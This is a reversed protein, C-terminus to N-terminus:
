QRPYQRRQIYIRIYKEFFIIFLTGDLKIAFDCLRLKSHLFDLIMRLNPFKHTKFSLSINHWLRRVIKLKPYGVNNVFSGNKPVFLKLLRPSQSFHKFYVNSGWTMDAVSQQYVRLTLKSFDVSYMCTFTQNNCSSVHHVNSNAQIVAQMINLTWRAHNQSILRCLQSHGAHM